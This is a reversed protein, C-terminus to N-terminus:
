IRTLKDREIVVKKNMIKGLKSEMNEIHKEESFSDIESELEKLRSKYQTIKKKESEIKDEIEEIEKCVTM